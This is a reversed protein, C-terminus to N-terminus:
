DMEYDVTLMEPIHGNAAKLYAARLAEGHRDQRPVACHHQNLTIAM